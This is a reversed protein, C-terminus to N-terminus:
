LIGRRNFISAPLIKRHKGNGGDKLHLMILPSLLKVAAVVIVIQEGRFTGDGIAATETDQKKSFKLPKLPKLNLKGCRVIRNDVNTEM